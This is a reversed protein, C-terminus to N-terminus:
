SQPPSNEPEAVTSGSASPVGTSETETAHPLHTNKAM